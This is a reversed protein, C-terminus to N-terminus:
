ERLGAAELAEAETTFAQFGTVLGDRLRWVHAFENDIEEDSGKPRGWDRAIVLVRDPPIDTLKRAEIQWEEFTGVWESVAQNWADPGRGDMWAFDFEVEPHLVESLMERTRSLHAYCRRVIEVNEQSM